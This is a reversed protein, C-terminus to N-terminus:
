SSRGRQAVFEGTLSCATKGAVLLRPNLKIRALGKREFIKLFRDFDLSEPAPCVSHLDESVPKLFKIDCSKLIIHVDHGRTRLAHFIWAYGALIAVAALSGGFAGGLHNHNPELPCRLEVQTEDIRLVHVGLAKSLPIQTYLFAELESAIASDHGAQNPKNASKHIPNM